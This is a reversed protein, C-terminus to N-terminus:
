GATAVEVVVRSPGTLSYVRFPARQATGIWAVSTGEFTADYFVGQVVDLGPVAVAGRGLETAGSEYPYSTGQLTVQLHASGPVDVAEGSGQAAPTDVYEVSWGPTGTGALELVVRDYGDHRAARVTTVTLGAPAVPDAVDADTSGPFPSGDAASGTVAADVTDDAAAGTSSASTAAADTQSACGAVLVAAALLGVARPIRTRRRIRV